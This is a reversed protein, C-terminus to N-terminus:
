ARMRKSRGRTWCSLMAMVMTVVLHGPRALDPLVTLFESEMVIPHASQKMLMGGLKNEYKFKGVTDLTDPYKLIPSKTTTETLCMVRGDGLPLVASNPNDTLVVGSVLGVVNSVRDLINRPKPCQSFERLVPRGNTKASIYVRDAPTRGYRARAPLLPPRAHHTAYGDFLHHFAQDGVDWM